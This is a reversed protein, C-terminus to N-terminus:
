RHIVSFYFLIDVDHTTMNNTLVVPLLASSFHFMYHMMAHLPFWQKKNRMAASSKTNVTYCILYVSSKLSAVSSVILWQM